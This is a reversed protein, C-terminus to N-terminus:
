ILFELINEVEYSPDENARRDIVTIMESESLNFYYHLFHQIFSHEKL